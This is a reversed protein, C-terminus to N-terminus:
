WQGEPRYGAEPPIVVVATVIVSPGISNCKQWRLWFSGTRHCRSRGKVMRMSASTLHCTVLLTEETVQHTHLCRRPSTGPLAIKPSLVFRTSSNASDRHKSRIQNTVM